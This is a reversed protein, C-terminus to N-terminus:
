ANNGGPLYEFIQIRQNYADSVYIHDRSDIFLGSPLWFQGREIGREGFTLLYRGERDFIQVADFLADVVYIHGKSDVAVGKPSAFDGSFKGHRGFQGEFRGGADFLQLRFNLADTVYVTGEADVAVHTPFNFTGQETGRQGIMGLPRGDGDFIWIGHVISDAVYLHNHKDDYALGAPRGLHPSEIRGTLVRSNDYIFVKALYSDAVYIRDNRGAAVAVPSVLPQGDAEDISHWRGMASDLIWVAQAGPDAVYIVPGKAAVGTPRILWEKETGVFFAGVRKWFSPEIGLDEPQAV